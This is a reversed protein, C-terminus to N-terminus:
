EQRRQSIRLAVASQFRALHTAIRAQLEIADDESMPGARVANSRSLGILDAMLGDFGDPDAKFQSAYVMELLFRQASLRASQEIFEQHMPELADQLAENMLARIEEKMAPAKRPNNHFEWHLAVGAAM